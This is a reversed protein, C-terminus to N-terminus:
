GNTQMQRSRIMRLEYLIPIFGLESLRETEGVTLLRVVAM